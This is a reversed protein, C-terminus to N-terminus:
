SRPLLADGRLGPAPLIASSLASREGGRGRRRPSDQAVAVALHGPALHRPQGTLPLFCGPPRSPAAGGRDGGPQLEKRDEEGRCSGEKGRWLRHSLGRRGGRLM